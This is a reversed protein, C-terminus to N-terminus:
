ANQLLWGKEWANSDASDQSKKEFEVLGAEEDSLSKENDALAAKLDKLKNLNEYYEPHLGALMRDDDKLTAPISKRQEKVQAALEKIEAVGQSIEKRLIKIQRELEKKEVSLEERHALWAKHAKKQKKDSGKESSEQEPEEAEAERAKQAKKKVKEAKDQKPDKKKPSEQGNGNNSNGNSNAAQAPEVAAGGLESCRLIEEKILALIGSLAKKKPKDENSKFTKKMEKALRITANNCKKALKQCKTFNAQSASKGSQATAEKLMVDLAEPLAEAGALGQVEHKSLAANWKKALESPM